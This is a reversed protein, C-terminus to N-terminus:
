FPKNIPKLNSGIDSNNKGKGKFKSNSSLRFDKQEPNSFGISKLDQALFNNAPIVIDNSGLNRINFIVNNLFSPQWDKATINDESHIGYNGYGAINDRFVFSRPMKGYITALNGFNFSTNNAILVDEGDAIQIFYGGGEFKQGGINLFLNNTITLRKLTQSPHTDDKGLINIGEGAGNVINDQIIVDEITSYPASGDQNRVTVRFAAGLWNNELYNGIFQVRKANKIEFLCKISNKGKWSEPKNFFNNSVEIDQPIMEASVPDAGGFMLNEAGGEIYNNTIQINKTGNWGCIAQTEQEPFAFGEFYSNKIITNASNLAIARRTVGANISHFYCRDFELHHPVESPKKSSIGLDLLNYVYDSNIPTFEIGIFRFHHSATEAIIASGGKGRTVIKAMQNSQNPKVIQNPVLNSAGSSQITIFDSINKNPLKIDYYTGGAQLEIIDGGNAKNIAEQLNGGTPVKIIQHNGEKVIEISASNLTFKESFIQSCFTFTVALSLIISLFIVLYVKSQNSKVVEKSRIKNLNSSM